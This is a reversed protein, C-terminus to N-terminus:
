GALHFLDKQLQTKLSDTDVGFFFTFFYDSLPIGPLGHLLNDKRCIYMGYLRYSIVKTEIIPSLFIFDRNIDIVIPNNIIGASTVAM